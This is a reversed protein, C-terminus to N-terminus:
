KAKKAILVVYNGDIEVSTEVDKSIFFKNEYGEIKSANEIAEKVLDVKQSDKVKIVYASFEIPKDLQTYDVKSRIFYGEEIDDNTFDYKAVEGDFSPNITFIPNNDGNLEAINYDGKYKNYITIAKDLVTDDNYEPKVALDLETFAKEFADGKDDASIYCIFNGNEVIHITEEAPLVCVGAYMIGKIAKKYKEFNTNDEFQLVTVNQTSPMMMPVTSAGSIYGEIEINEQNQDLMNQYNLQQQSAKEDLVNITEYPKVGVKDFMMMLVDLSSYEHVKDSENNDVTSKNSTGCGGLSICLLLTLLISM